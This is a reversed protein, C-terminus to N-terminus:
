KEILNSIYKTYNLNELTYEKATKFKESLDNYYVISEIMKEALDDIDSPKFLLSLPKDQNIEMVSKFGGNIVIKGCVLADLYKVHVILDSFLNQRDPCVLVDALEQYSSLYAYPQRGQLYIRSASKQSQILAKCEGFTPGDGILILKVQPHIAAVKDFALILDQIGGTEKYAGAFLFVFDGSEIELEEKLKEVLEPDFPKVNQYNLLYPLYYNKKNKLGPYLKKFYDDMAQSAYIIGQANEFVKKDLKQSIKKKIRFQVKTVFTQAKRAQFDFENSAIGHVDNIYGEIIGNKMLWYGISNDLYEFFIFQSYPDISQFISKLKELLVPFFLNLAKYDFTGLLFQFKRKDRPSSEFPIPIHKVKQAVKSPDKINSILTIDDHIKALENVIGLMRITGGGEKQFDNMTFFVFKKM